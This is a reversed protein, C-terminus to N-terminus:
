VAVADLAKLIRKESIPRPTGLTQAFLGVRLEELMWRIEELAEGPPRGPPVRDCLELWQDRLDQVRWMIEEDRRAGQPLRDLRLQMGRLYRLLDPLRGAGAGTVFGPAVLEVLQTRM